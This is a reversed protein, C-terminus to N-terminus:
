GTALAAITLMSSDVASEMETKVECVVSRAMSM